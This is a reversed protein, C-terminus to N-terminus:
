YPTIVPYKLLNVKLVMANRISYNPLFLCRIHFAIEINYSPPQPTNHKPPNELFNTSALCHSVYSYEKLIWTSMSNEINISHFIKSVVKQKSKRKYRREDSGGEIMM